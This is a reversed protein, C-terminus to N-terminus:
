YTPNKCPSEGLVNLRYESVTMRGEAYKEGKYLGSDNKRLSTLELSFTTRDFEVRGKYPDIIRLQRHKDHYPYYRVVDWSQNFVWVVNDTDKNNHSQMILTVSNGELAFVSEPASAM